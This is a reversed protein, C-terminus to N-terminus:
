HTPNGIALDAQCPASGSRGRRNVNNNADPTSITTRVGKMSGDNAVQPSAPAM